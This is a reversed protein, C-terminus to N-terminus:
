QLNNYYYGNDNPAVDPVIASRGNGNLPAWKNQQEVMRDLQDFNTPYNNLNKQFIDAHRRHNNVISAGQRLRADSLKTNFFTPKIGKVNQTYNFSDDNRILKYIYDAEKSKHNYITNLDAKTDQLNYAFRDEAERLDNQAQQLNKKFDARSMAIGNCMVYEPITGTIKGEHISSDWARVQEEMQQVQKRLNKIYQYDPNNSLEALVASEIPIPNDNNDTQIKTRVRPQTTSIDKGEAEASVQDFVSPGTNNVEVDALVSPAQQMASYLRRADESVEPEKRNYGDHLGRAYLWKNIQNEPDDRVYDWGVKGAIGTTGVVGAARLAKSKFTPGASIFKKILRFPLGLLGAQKQMSTDAAVQLLVTAQKEHLGYRYCTEVFGKIYNPDTASMLM